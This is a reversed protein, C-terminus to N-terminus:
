GQHLSSTPSRRSAGPARASLHAYYSYLPHTSLALVVALAWSVIMAGILYLVREAPALSVHLPPSPIVQKWFLLATTFFLTHELAHLADLAPHLRVDVACALRAPRRLIHCLEARAQGPVREASGAPCGDETQRPQARAVAALRAATGALDTDMAAGYVILPAAVMILMVHQVMHVWFLKQSIRDIPSALALLLILLDPLLLRGSARSAAHGRPTMTRRSGLWYMFALVIM